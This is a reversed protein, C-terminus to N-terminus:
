DPQACGGGARDPPRRPLPAPDPHTRRGGPCAGAPDPFSGQELQEKNGLAKAEPRASGVGGGAPDGHGLGRGPSGWPPGLSQIQPCVQSPNTKRRDRLAARGPAAGPSLVGLGSAQHTVPTLGARLQAKDGGPTPRAVGSCCSGCTGLQSLSVLAPLAVQVHEAKETDGFALPAPCPTPAIYPHAAGHAWWSM